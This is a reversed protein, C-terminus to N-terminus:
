PMVDEGRRIPGVCSLDSRGSTSLTPSILTKVQMIRNSSVYEIGIVVRALNEIDDGPLIRQPRARKDLVLYVSKVSFVGGPEHRWCWDDETTSFRVHRLSEILLM